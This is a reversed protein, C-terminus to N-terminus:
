LSYEITFPAPDHGRAEYQGSGRITALEGTGTGEVINWQAQAVGNHFSGNTRVVFSGSKNHFTGTLREFGVYLVVDRRTYSMQYTASGEGEFEGQLKWNEQVQTLKTGEGIEDLTTERWHTGRLTGTVKM